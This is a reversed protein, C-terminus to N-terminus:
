FITEWKNKKRKEELDMNQTKRVTVIHINYVVSGLSARHNGKM